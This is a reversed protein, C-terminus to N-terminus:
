LSHYLVCGKTRVRLNVKCFMRGRDTTGSEIKFLTRLRAFFKGLLCNLEKILFFFFPYTRNPYGGLSM